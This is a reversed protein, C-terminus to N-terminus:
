SRVEITVTVKLNVFEFDEVSGGATSNTRVTLTNQGVLLAVLPISASRTGTVLPPPFSLVVVGNVLVDGGIQDIDHLEIELRGAVPQGSLGFTYARERGEPSRMVFDPRFEDGLHHFNPDNILTVTTTQPSPGTSGASKSGDGGCAAVTLAM